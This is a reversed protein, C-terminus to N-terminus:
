KRSLQQNAKILKATRCEMRYEAEECVKRLAEKEQDREAIEMELSKVRALVQFGMWTYIVCIFLFM